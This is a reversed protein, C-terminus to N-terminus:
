HVCKHDKRGPTFHGGSADGDFMLWKVLFDYVAATTEGTLEWCHPEKPSPFDTICLCSQLWRTDESTIGSHLLHPPEGLLWKCLPREDEYRCPEASVNDASQFELTETCSRSMKQDLRGNGAHLGSSSFSPSRANTRGTKWFHLLHWLWVTFLTHIRSQLTFKSSGGGVFSYNEMLGDVIM